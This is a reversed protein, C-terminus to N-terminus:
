QLQYLGLLLIQERIQFNFLYITLSPIIVLLQISYKIKFHNVKSIRVTRNRDEFLIYGFILGILWPSYRTHTQYNIQHFGNDLKM